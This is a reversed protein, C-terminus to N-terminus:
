YFSDVSGDNTHRRSRMPPAPSGMHMHCANCGIGAGHKGREHDQGCFNCIYSKKGAFEVWCKLLDCVFDGDALHSKLLQQFDELPNLVPSANRLGHMVNDPIDRDSAPTLTYAAEIAKILFPLHKVDKAILSLARSFSRRLQRCCEIKLGEMLYKDALSHLFIDVVALQAAHEDCQTYYGQGYCWSLMRDVMFTKDELLAIKHEVGEKFSSECAKKFYDSKSCLVVQHVKWSRDGCEIVFDSHKGSEYISKLYSPEIGQGRPEGM